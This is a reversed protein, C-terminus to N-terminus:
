ASVGIVDMPNLVGLREADYRAQFMALLADRDLDFHQFFFRGMAHQCFQGERHHERCIPLAERDPCKQSMGRPGCHAAETPSSQQPISSEPFGAEALTQRMSECVCCPLTHLWALYAPDKGLKKRTASRM